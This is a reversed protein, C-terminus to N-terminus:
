CIGDTVTKNSVRKTNKNLLNDLLRLPLCSEQMDNRKNSANRKNSVGYYTCVLMQNKLVYFHNKQVNEKIM